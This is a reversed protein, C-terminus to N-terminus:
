PNCGHLLRPISWRCMFWSVSWLPYVHCPYVHCGYCGYLVRKDDTAYLPTYVTSSVRVEVRLRVKKYKSLRQLEIVKLMSKLGQCKQDQKGLTSIRLLTVLIPGICLTVLSKSSSPPPSRLYTTSVARSPHTLALTLLTLFPSRSTLRPHSFRRPTM